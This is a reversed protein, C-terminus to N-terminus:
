MNAPREKLAYALNIAHDSCRELDTVIDSFIIGSLGNCNANMLREVHNHILEKEYNDVNTELQEIEDLRSYDETSFIEISLYIAEITDRSMAKLEEIASDSLTAKKQNMEEIYEVINEAHDSIREIDTVAITMMSVRRMNDTNLDLTRLQVMADAISHNLINVTEENTRVATAKENDYDFFCEIARNLNDAAIKGMRSIERQTQHLAVAVPINSLQNMYVLSRDANKQNEAPDIPIIKEALWIIRNSLPLAVLVAIVAFITHTNAIQRGVDNPSLQRIWDTLPMINILFILLAARFLNFLLNLIATRKGERNATLSALLNPTVSGIAAGIVLYVATDYGILGQVVFTQFIVISSSSSQLLATFGIGFIVAAAPNELTTMFGIFEASDKLPAVVEKIMTIGAFLMGFGMIISGIHKVISKKFFLYMVAGIFLVFPTYLALNFATIQATITTGINAGMIVGIAQPLSMMGSNVFGIVMVDTASSSQVLVTMSLGALVAVFKNRTAHELINQLNDGCANKLGTSMISMGFLFLGVGGLLKFIDTISMNKRWNILDIFAQVYLMNCKKVTSTMM